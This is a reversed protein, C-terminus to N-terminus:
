NTVIEVMHPIWVKTIVVPKWVETTVDLFDQKFIFTCYMTYIYVNINTVRKAVHFLTYLPM